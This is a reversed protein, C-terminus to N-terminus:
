WIEKGDLQRRVVCQERLVSYCSNFWTAFHDLESLDLESMLQAFEQMVLSM